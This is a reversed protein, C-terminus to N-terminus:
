LEEFAWALQGDSAEQRRSLCLPFKKPGAQVRQLRWFSLGGVRRCPSSTPSSSSPSISERSSGKEKRAKRLTQPPFLPTVVGMKCLTSGYSSAAAVTNIVAFMHSHQHSSLGGEPSPGM